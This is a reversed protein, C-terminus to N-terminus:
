AQVGVFAPQSVNRNEELQLSGSWENLRWKENLYVRWTINELPLEFKPGLLALDLRRGGPSGIQSYYVLEITVPKGPSTQELPVLIRDQERWPWVGNQNVFAFWFRGNKPLTFKLLRTDGPIMELRVETLMVGEDSIVSTLTIANIHAALLKTAEHRELQLPLQFGPDILRFTHNASAAEIDQRLGRPISQWETRQLTEPMAAVRM